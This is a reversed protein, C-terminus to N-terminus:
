RAPEVVLGWTGLGCGLVLGGGAVVTWANTRGRLREAEATTTSAEFDGHAVWALGYALGATGLSVASAGLLPMRLGSGGPEGPAREPPRRRTVAAEGTPEVTGPPFRYGEILWTSVPAPAARQLVHPRGGTAEPAALERGDLRWSAEQGGVLRSGSLSVRVLDLSAREADWAALLPHGPPLEDAAWAHDPELELSARFWRAAGVEDGRLIWTWAGLYRYAAAFSAPAPVEDLCPLGALLRRGAADFADDEMARLADRVAAVDAVMASETYPASCDM